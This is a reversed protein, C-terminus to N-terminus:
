VHIRSAVPPCRPGVWSGEAVFQGQPTRKQLAPACHRRLYTHQDQDESYRSISGRGTGLGPDLLHLAGATLATRSEIVILMKGTHTHPVLIIWASPRASKAGASRCQAHPDHLRPDLRQVTGSFCQDSSHRAASPVWDTLMLKLLGTSIASSFPRAMLVLRSLHLTSLKQTLFPGSPVPPNWAVRLRAPLGM